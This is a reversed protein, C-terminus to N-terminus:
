QHEQSLELLNFAKSWGLCLVNAAVPLAVRDHCFDFDRNNLEINLDCNCIKENVDSIDHM